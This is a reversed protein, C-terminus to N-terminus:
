TRPGNTSSTDTALDGSTWSSITHIGLFSHPNWSNRSPDGSPSAAASRFGATERLRRCSGRVAERRVVNRTRFPLRHRGAEAQICCEALGETKGSPREIVRLAAMDQLWAACLQGGTDGARAFRCAPRASWARMAADVARSGRRQLVEGVCTLASRAPRRVQARGWCGTPREGRRDKLIRFGHRSTSGHRGALGMRRQHAQDDGAHTRCWGAPSARIARPGELGRDTRASCVPSGVSIRFVRLM